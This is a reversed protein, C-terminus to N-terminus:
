LILSMPLGVINSSGIIAVHKGKIDINHVDLITLIGRPTCPLTLSPNYSPIDTNNVSLALKGFKRYLFCDVDKEVLITDLINRENLHPPLPLQVLIGHIDNSYNLNNIHQIIERETSHSTFQNTFISIM